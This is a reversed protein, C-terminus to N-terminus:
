QASKMKEYERITVITAQVALRSMTKALKAINDGDVSDPFLKKMAAEELATCQEETMELM